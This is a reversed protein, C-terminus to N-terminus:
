TRAAARDEEEDEYVFPVARPSREPMRYLVVLLVIGFLFMGVSVTQSITLLGATDHPNDVRITELVIRTIPYIICLAAFVVGHRKRRYLIELLLWSLLLANIIGYVQAPQVPLSRHHEALDRLETATMGRSPDQRSPFAEAWRLAAIEQDHETLAAKAAELEKKLAEIEAPKAELARLNRISEEAKRVRLAPGELETVSMNLQKDPLLFPPGGLPTVILEAPMTMQRNEWQRITAFSSSPFQIGWPIVEQGQPTVCVGGWCCGNLLCGMRGFALGWAAAPTLIDLYMRMSVGALWLYVVCGLMAFLLGGYYEMGGGTCDLAALIPRPQIAFTSEWYHIVFFLRAGVVGCILSIFGMNLIVDPNAKVREARRMSLWVGTLFGLTLMAGYSRVPYHVFPLDFLEPHM